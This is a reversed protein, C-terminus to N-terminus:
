GIKDNCDGAKILMAGTFVALFLGLVLCMAHVAIIAYMATEHNDYNGLETNAVYAIVQFIVAYMVGFFIYPSNLGTDNKTSM